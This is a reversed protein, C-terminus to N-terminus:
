NQTLVRFTPYQIEVPTFQMFQTEVHYSFKDFGINILFYFHYFSSLTSYIEFLNFKLIEIKFSLNFEKFKKFQIHRQSKTYPAKSTSQAWYHCRLKTASVM